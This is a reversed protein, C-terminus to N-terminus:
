GGAPRASVRRLAWAVVREAAPFLVDDSFTAQASHNSPPSAQDSTRAGILLFVGPVEDLVWSYDESIGIPAPLISLPMGEHECIEEMLRLETSNTITPITDHRATVSAEVGHAAAIGAAVRRVIGEVVAEDERSFSRIVGTLEAADPIINRAHGATITGFTLVSPAFMSTGNYLAAGVAGVFAAAANIPHRALEPSSSHGGVGKFVVEVLTSGALVAGDRNAIEGPKLLHALVQLGLAAIPRAGAVTLLGESLALQAGGWGEEGPQFFFVVDASLEERRWQVELAASAVIALHCDHGCAHMAGNDSSWDLGTEEILPLTDMDSRVLLTPVSEPSRRDMHPERVTATVSSNERGIAIELGGAQLIDIVRRQTLPLSPAVEPIQHFEHRLAVIDDRNLM